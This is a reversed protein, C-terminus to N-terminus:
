DNWQPSPSNRLPEVIQSLPERLRCCHQWQNHQHHCHSHQERRNGDRWGAFPFICEATEYCEMPAISSPKLLNSEKENSVDEQWVLCAGILHWVHYSWQPSPSNRLPELIKPFRSVAGATNGSITCTTVTVISGGEISMGGGQLHFVTEATEYCEM